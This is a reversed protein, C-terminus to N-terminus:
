RRIVRCQTVREVIEDRYRDVGGVVGVPNCIYQPILDFGDSVAVAPHAHFDATYAFIM